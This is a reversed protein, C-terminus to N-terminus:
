SASRWPWVIERVVIPAPILGLRQFRDAVAQQQTLVADTLPGFTFEARDVAKKQAVIDVGSAESFLAATEDRHTDAWQTAKGIEENIAAVVDGHAAAFDRNVLFFSNQATAKEDIPLARANQKLEALALFPDWISWADIAGRSFAAAADAPALYVPTIDSWPIKESELAAVLLNHASSAKAVGVKKGKLDALTKIPSDSPVVIAQGFGRAPIAAAYLLNAHAAQAFIPPADGTYGYDVAGASLAELLPPGFPFEVWKVTVGEAEFRRELVKQAKVILLAGTKQYGVRLEKLATAASARSSAAVPIAVAVAGALFARRNM